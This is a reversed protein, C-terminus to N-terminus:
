RRESKPKRGEGLQDLDGQAYAAQKTRSCAGTFLRGDRAVAFVLYSVGARYHPSEPSNAPEVVVAEEEDDVGKWAESLKFRAERLGGTDKVELVEGLFVAASGKLAGEVSKPEVMCRSPPNSVHVALPTLVAALFLTRACM